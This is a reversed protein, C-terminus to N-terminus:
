DKRNEKGHSNNSFHKYLGYGVAGIAAVVGFIAAGLGITTTDTTHGPLGLEKLVKNCFHQCNNFALNYCGMFNHVLVLYAVECIRELSSHLEGKYTLNELAGSYLQAKPAVKWSEGDPTDTHVTLEITVPECHGEKDVLILCHHHVFLSHIYVKYCLQREMFKKHQSDLAMIQDYFTIWKDFGTSTTSVVLSAM